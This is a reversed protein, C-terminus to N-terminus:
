KPLGVISVSLHLGDAMGNLFYYCERNTLGCEIVRKGDASDVAVYGNRQGLAIGVAGPNRFEIVRNVDEVKIELIKTTIRM